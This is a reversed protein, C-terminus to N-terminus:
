HGTLTITDIVNLLSKIYIIGHTEHTQMKQNNCIFENISIQNTSIQTLMQFTFDNKQKKKRLSTPHPCSLIHILCHHAGTFYFCM